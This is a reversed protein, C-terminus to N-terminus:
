QGQRVGGHEPVWRSDRRGLFPTKPLERRMQGEPRPIADQPPRGGDQGRRGSLGLIYPVLRPKLRAVINRRGVSTGETRGRNTDAHLASHRATGQGRHGSGLVSSTPPRVARFAGSQLAIEWTTLPFDRSNRVFKRSREEGGAMVGRRAGARDQKCQTSVACGSRKQGGSTRKSPELARCAGDCNAQESHLTFPRICPGPM